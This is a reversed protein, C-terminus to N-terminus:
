TARLTRTGIFCVEEGGIAEHADQLHAQLQSKSVHKFPETRSHPPTYAVM